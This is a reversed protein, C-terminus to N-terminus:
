EDACVLFSIGSCTAVHISRSFSAGLARLWVSLFVYDTLVSVPFTGFHCIDVRDNTSESLSINSINSVQLPCLCDNRPTPFIRLDSWATHSLSSHETAWSHGIQQSMKSQPGNPEERWSIGWAVIGSHTAMEERLLDERGASRVWTEQM